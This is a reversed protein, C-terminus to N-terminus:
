EYRLAVMPDVRTARRAPIWCAALSVTALLVVVALYTIPDSPSVGMLLKSMARTLALAALLGALVGGGVLVLGQRSILKLIDGRAAGLAMRVGIEHTRQAAAFSIVGYTGVVALLLGLIGLTAALSAALSFIFLGALGHVTQEMTAAQVIPMDPVLKRIEREVVPIMAEPPGSTRVQLSALSSYDQAFPLYFYPQPDPSIFWYQGDAAVGVVQIFPGSAGKLSFRKGIADQNPWLRAAMTQNVIAVMPGTEDDFDTFNRGRLLPVRMTPFYGRDVGDYSIEAPKEDPPIPRGEVYIPSNQSPYAMPVTVALSASEVGPLARVRGELERYFSKTRAEDYGVQHPDLMVSVVHDPAFGLFMHEAHNLSRVFLGAVVLLMLSGAVQAVILLRRFHYRAPGSSDSRGGEHLVANLDTRGARLAPWLGVFIGTFVAAALTYAFVKWDFRCDMRFAYGASSTTVPRLLFGAALIALEGLVAGAIGGLLAFLLSEILMQRILRVRGAGIAARIAMERERATARALLLNAVNMCALLLVLSPLALFLGAIVPVFSSVEPAPRAQREPIVRVALGKDTSPYQAALRKAVVAMATQAQGLGTGPSLRAFLMLARDARDSWFAGGKEGLSDMSLPLYGDMDFAFLLGHFQRPAVGIIIAPRGNVAIHKGIVAPDGAFRRQWYAHGLVLTLADGPKEGEGPVFLRGLLPKVGLASFYNGTVASFAFQGPKGDVSLGASGTDYGFVESFVGAQNRIDLMDLYSLRSGGREKALDVIQEPHSVPLPRLLWENLVSFISTNVGIGLGLTIVVIATLGPSKGLMRLGYRVDQALSHAVTIGRADRCQEKTQELGGFEVRARRQAEARVVGERALDDAYSEIHFRLEADMESETRSRTLLTRLWSRLRVALRM